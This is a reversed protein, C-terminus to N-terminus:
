EPALVAVKFIVFLVKTSGADPVLYLTAIVVEHPIVVEATAVM